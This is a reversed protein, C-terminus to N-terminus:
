TLSLWILEIAIVIIISLFILDGLTLKRFKRNLFVMIIIILTSIILGGFEIINFM